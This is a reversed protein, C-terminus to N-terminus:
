TKSSSLLGAADQLKIISRQREEQRAGQQQQPPPPSILGGVDQLSIPSTQRELGHSPAAADSSAARGRNRSSERAQSTRRVTPLSMGFRSASPSLLGWSGRLSKALWTVSIHREYQAETGPLALALATRRRFGARAAPIRKGGRAPRRRRLLFSTEENLVGTITSPNKLCLIPVTTRATRTQRSTSIPLHSCVDIIYHPLNRLAMPYTSLLHPQFHDILDAPIRSGIGRFLEEDSDYRTTSLTPRRNTSTQEISDLTSGRRYRNRKVGRDRVFSGLILANSVAASALIECSAWVTRYQQRGRKAIVEPVRTGTIGILCISLSFLAVLSIKRKVSMKSRLVIPIPFAVLLIDTIIDAVGMTILQAFGQRCRPGPDPVVQWYHDFPQCEALTAIVVVFFTVVLFVRICRLTIEYNRTWITSTLRKLFESVTFKSIWIFMAYFIRSALVLRAGISRQHIKTPSIGGSTSVNNTGFLLIVHVLGMRILLPIISLAMIKDERFLVNTRVKRGGLRVLIIVLAFGTCWWSFLLTPYNDDRTRPEPPADSWLDRRLLM